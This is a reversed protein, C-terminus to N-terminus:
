KKCTYGVHPPTRVDRPAIQTLVPRLSRGPRVPQTYHTGAKLKKLSAYTDTEANGGVTQAKASRRLNIANTLRYLLV